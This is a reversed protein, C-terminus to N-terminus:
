RSACTNSCWDIKTTRVPVNNHHKIKTGLEYDRFDNSVNDDTETIRSKKNKNKILVRVYM